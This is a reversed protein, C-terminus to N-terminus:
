PRLENGPSMPGQKWQNIKFMEGASQAGGTRLWRAMSQVCVDPDCEGGARRLSGVSEPRFPVDLVDYLPSLIESIVPRDRVILIGGLLAADKEVRQSLGVLKGHCQLSHGGPCFSDPPEGPRADVGLVRLARRVLEELHQYRDTIGERTSEIPYTRAFAITSDWYVVARGGTSREYLPLGRRSAFECANTFGEETRDQGGFVVRRGPRDVWFFPRGRERTWELMAAGARTSQVTYEPESM